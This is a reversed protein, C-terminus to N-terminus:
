LREPEPTGPAIVPITQTIHNAQDNVTSNHTDNDSFQDSYGNGNQIVDSQGFLGGSHNVGANQGAGATFSSGSPDIVDIHGDIVEISMGSSPFYSVNEETGRVSATGKPTQVKFSSQIGQIKSFRVKVKGVSIAVKHDANQDTINESYAVMSLENVVFFGGKTEVKVSAGLGTMIKTGDLIEQGIKVPTWKDKILADVSGALEKVTGASMVNVFALIFLLVTFKKM